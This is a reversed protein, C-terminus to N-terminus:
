ESMIYLSSVLVHVELNNLMLAYCFVIQSIAQLDTWVFAKLQATLKGLFPPHLVPRPQTTTKDTCEARHQCHLYLQRRM